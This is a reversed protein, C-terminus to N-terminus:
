KSALKERCKKIPVELSNIKCNVIDVVVIWQSLADNIKTIRNHTYIQFEM